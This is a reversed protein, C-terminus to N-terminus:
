RDNIGCCCGTAVLGNKASNCAPWAPKTIVKMVGLLNALKMCRIAWLCASCGAGDNPDIEFYLQDM